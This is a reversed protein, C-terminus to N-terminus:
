FYIFLKYLSDIEVLLAQASFLGDQPLLLCKECGGQPSRPQSSRPGRPAGSGRARPNLGAEEPFCAAEM